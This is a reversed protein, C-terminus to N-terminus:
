GRYPLKRQGGRGLQAELDTIQRAMQLIQAAMANNTDGVDDLADQLNGVQASRAALEVQLRLKQITQIRILELLVDVNDAERDRQRCETEWYDADLDAETLATELRDIDAVADQLQGELEAIRAKLTRTSADGKAQELQLELELVRDRLMENEAEVSLGEEPDDAEELLGLQQDTEALETRLSDILDNADVADSSATALVDNFREIIRASGLLLEGIMEAHPAPLDVTVEGDANSILADGLDTLSEAHSEALDPDSVVGTAVASINAERHGTERIAHPSNSELTRFGELNVVKGENDLTLKRTADLQSPRYNTPM